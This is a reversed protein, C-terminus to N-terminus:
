APVPSRTELPGPLFLCPDRLFEANAREHEGRNGLDIWVCDPDYAKITRNERILQLVLTPADLYRGAIIFPLVSPSYVYIGMSAAYCMTPKEDYDTVRKDADLTLVGLEIQVKTWVVGITLEADGALHHRYLDGFDLSTLIDGNMVIFPANLGTITGIAGATGLPTEEWHYRIKILRSMESQELFTQILSGLYGLAIVVETVGAHALQRLIIELIPRDGIPM